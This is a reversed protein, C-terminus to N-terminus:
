RDWCYASASWYKFPHGEKLLVFGYQLGQDPDHIDLGLAAALAEHYYTNIQFYGVDQGVKTGREGPQNPDFDSECQIIRYALHWDTGTQAALEQIRALVALTPRDFTITSSATSTGTPAIEITSTPIDAPLGPAELADFVPALNQLGPAPINVAVVSSAPLSLGAFGGIAFAIIIRPLM